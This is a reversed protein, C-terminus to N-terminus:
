EWSYGSEFVNAGRVDTPRRSVICRGGLREYFACSPNDSIVWLLFPTLRHSRLWAGVADFLARGLGLGQYARLLYIAYLEGPYAAEDAAERNPGGCAFGVIRGDVEAVFLCGGGSRLAEHWQAEREGYTLANLVAAPLMGPYTERWADVHVRAM